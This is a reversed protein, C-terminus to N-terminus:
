FINSEAGNKNFYTLAYQIVGSKFSGTNYLKQVNVSEELSLNQVFDFSTDTYSYISADDVAINIVRPQNRGDIWYVKQINENEYFPLTKIKNNISFNLSGDYLRIVDSVGSENPPKIKYIRDTGNDTTFLILNDNIVSTGITIGRIDSM